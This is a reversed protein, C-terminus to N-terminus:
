RMSDERIRLSEQRWEVEEAEGEDIKESHMTRRKEIMM